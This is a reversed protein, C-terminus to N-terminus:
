RWWGKQESELRDNAHHFSSIVIVDRPDNAHHFNLYIRGNPFCYTNGLVCQLGPEPDGEFYISELLGIFDLVFQLATELLALHRPHMYDLARAFLRHIRWGIQASVLCVKHVRVTGDPRPWAILEHPDGWQDEQVVWQGCCWCPM